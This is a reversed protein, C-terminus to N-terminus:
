FKLTKETGDSPKRHPRATRRIFLFSASVSHLFPECVLARPCVDEHITSNKLNRIFLKVFKVYLAYVRYPEAFFQVYDLLLRVHELKEDIEVVLAGFRKWVLSDEFERRQHVGHNLLTSTDDCSCFRSDHVVLNFRTNVDMPRVNEYGLGLRESKTSPDQELQWVIRFPTLTNVRADVAARSEPHEPRVFPVTSRSIRTRVRRPTIEVPVRKIWDRISFDELEKCKSRVLHGFLRDVDFYRTCWQFAEYALVELALFKCVDSTDHSFPVVSDDDLRIGLVTFSDLPYVLRIVHPETDRASTYTLQTVVVLALLLLKDSPLM